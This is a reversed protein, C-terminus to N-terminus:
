HAIAKRLRQAIVQMVNIAIEPNEKLTLLFDKRNICLLRTRKKTRVSASRPERDIISLEGICSGNSLTEIVKKGKIVDVEGEIIIFLEEGAEKERIFVKGSPFELEKTILAIRVLDDIGVDSFLRNGKLFIIKGLINLMESEETKLYYRFRAEVDPMSNFHVLVHASAFGVLDKMGPMFEKTELLIRGPDIGSESQDIPIRAQAELVEDEFIYITDKIDKGGSEIFEQIYGTVDADKLFIGSEYAYDLGTGTMVSVAKLVLHKRLEIERKLVLDLFSACLKDAKERFKTGCMLRRILVARGIGRNQIEIFRLMESRMRLNVSIFYKLYNAIRDYDYHRFIRTAVAKRIFEGSGFIEEMDGQSFDFRYDLLLARDADELSVCLALFNILMQAPAHKFRYLVKRATKRSLAPAHPILAKFLLLEGTACALEALHTACISSDLVQALIYFEVPASFGSIIKEKIAGVRREISSKKQVATSGAILNVAFTAAEIDGDGHAEREDVLLVELALQESELRKAPYGQLLEVRKVYPYRSIAGLALARVRLNTDMIANRMMEERLNRSSLSGLAFMKEKSEISLEPFYPVLLSMVDANPSAKFLADLVTLNMEVAAPDKKLSDVVMSTSLEERHGPDYSLQNKLSLVYARNQFVTLVLYGIGLVAALAYGEHATLKRDIVLVIGGGAIMGAPLIIGSIFSKMEAIRHRPAAALIVNFVPQRFMMSLSKRFFRLLVGAALGPVFIMFAFFAAFSGPYIYNSKKVGLIRIIRATIFVQVLLTVFDSAFTYISLFLALDNRSPFASNFIAAFYYEAITNVLAMVFVVLISVYFIPSSFSLEIRKIIKEIIHEDPLLEHKELSSKRDAGRFLLGMWAVPAVLLIGNICWWIGGWQMVDQGFLAILSFSAIIGGLKGGGMLLPLLRKSSQISLFQYSYNFYHIDLYFTFLYNGLYLYFPLRYHADYSMNLSLLILGSFLAILIIYGRKLSFRLLVYNYMIGAVILAIGNYVFFRSLGGAGYSKLFLTETYIQGVTYFSGSLLYLLFLPIVFKLERHQVSFAKWIIRSASLSM